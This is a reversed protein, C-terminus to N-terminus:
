PKVLIKVQDSEPSKLRDFGETVIEDLDIRDTIFPEPDFQGADLMDIVTGFEEHARPGGTYGITGTVTREGTVIPNLNTSIADEWISVVVVDGTPKTSSVADNFSAEVGAVEFAVDVGGDTLSRIHEGAATATPDILEDAGSEAAVERRTAQPESVIIPDAGAARVSQIVALGIPGSGFVAVSDGPDIATQRVAHLGVSLPEVLAGYETPVNGLPVAQEAKVVVEESFGGGGGSLGTFGGNECLRYQGRQCQQCEGCYLIPNVAVAEGVERDTVADGVAAITGSFEHGMTVPATAETVPHPDAGPIFIPGAVYEHLDSGCIGGTDVAVRVEDAGLSQRDIEEVQINERGHFRAARM